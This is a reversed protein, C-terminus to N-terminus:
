NAEDSREVYAAHNNYITHLHCRIRIPRRVSESRHPLQGLRASKPNHLIAMAGADKRSYIRRRIQRYNDEILWFPPSCSIKLDVDARTSTKDCSYLMGKSQWLAEEPVQVSHVFTHDLPKSQYSPHNHFPHQPKDSPESITLKFEGLDTTRGAFVVNRDYGLEEAADAGEAEISGLGEVGVTFWVSTKLNEAVGNQSGMRPEADERAEGKIRAGWGGKGEDFKVFYTKLDIGNDKDHMTQVGGTRPDYADWGYGAMDENQECTFRINHQADSFDEIRAWLLGTMLSKPLKPRLGFYLNPRYPGWLLSDNSAKTFVSDQASAFFTNLLLLASGGSWHM